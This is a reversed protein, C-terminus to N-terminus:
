CDMPDVDYYLSVQRFRQCFEERLLLLRDRVPVMSVGSEIKLLMKRIYHMQIRQVAPADPGLVRDGFVARFQNGAWLAADNLVGYESSKLYINIIRTFPPYQFMRREEIESDYFEDFRGSVVLPYVPNDSERTQIVVHGQRYRRGARGAVQSMMQFARESSRFDPSGSLSDANLIGVVSVRDFDLGKTVMQTGILINTLGDEFDQMIQNYASSSVATDTDLRGTVAMPFLRNIEEEVKETGYGSVDLHRGGCEPCSSPMQYPKGCYHCSLKRLSKHWTLSVDCSDCKPVWGCSLCRLVPAYGRRNRFLIVQNGDNLAQRIYSELLPSILGNMRKKRRLEYVDVVEVQPLPLDMFRDRMEALGYKGNRAYFYSELSPTASGLLVKAGCYSALVMAANRANYRPAPDTQKYSADHEEDIVVLGLNRYPLFVSSRAGVVVKFPNNGLQRKWIEAREAESCRSHYVCMEDGFVRQLRRMIHLTLAIEPLLFLVQRGQGVYEKMLHIYVETKGSSTVGHLLCIDKNVFASKISDSAGQQQRNLVNPPFLRGDFLPLRGREHHWIELIGKHVLADLASQSDCRSLLARRTVIEPEDCPADSLGSLDLYATLMDVQRGARSIQSFTENLRTEDYQWALRVCSETRPKYDEGADDGSPRLVAPLMAKMVDGRACLYYNSIWELLRMQSEVLCPKDDLACIVPRVDYGEPRDTHTRVVIATYRKTRGFPVCLRMGAMIEGPITEPISYTFLRDLPLPLIVDVYRM